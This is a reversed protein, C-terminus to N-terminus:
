RMGNREINLEKEFMTYPTVGKMNRGQHPRKNNCIVLDNDMNQQMEDLAKYWKVHDQIRFHEDLLTRHLREIFGNGQPRRVETNKLITTVTKM